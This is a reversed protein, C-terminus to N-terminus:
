FMLALACRQRALIIVCAIWKLVRTALAIHAHWASAGVGFLEVPRALLAGCIILGVSL